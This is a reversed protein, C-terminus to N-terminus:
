FLWYPGNCYFITRSLNMLYQLYESVTTNINHSKAVARKSSDLSTTVEYKSRETEIITTTEITRKTSGPHGTNISVKKTNMIPMNM